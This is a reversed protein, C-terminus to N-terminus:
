STLEEPEAIVVKQEKLFDYFGYVRSGMFTMEHAQEPCINVCGVCFICKDRDISYNKIAIAKPPCRDECLGCQICKERNIEHRGTLVRKSWWDARLIKMPSFVTCEYDIEISRGAKVSTLTDSAFKKARDYVQRDPLHKYKLIREVRGSSWTPAFTSMNGFETSGVPVAGKETLLDLLTMATNKQNHGPGGYTSYSAAATGTVAPIKKLWRIFTVPPDYYYVPSGAIIIDYGTLAAPDIDRHDSATVQLGSKKLQWAMLRGLRETHGTQSFWIVLAKKPDNTKMPPYEESARAPIKGAVTMTVAAAAAGKVFDRRTKM